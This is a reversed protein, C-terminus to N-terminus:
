LWKEEIIGGEISITVCKIPVHRKASDRAELAISLLGRCCPVEMVVVTLTNIKADDILSTIKDGYIKTGGDLKPCAIGVTKGKLFVNHFNGFSFASCDAALVMDANIFHPSMPSILHMQVPWHSLSSPVDESVKQTTTNKFSRSKSGPCGGGNHQIPEPNFKMDPIPIGHENLFNVAVTYYSTQDHDKLHKLHARITSEGQKIINEMVKAENYTEAEREIISIAGEPCHGLCAGLGDCMLDSIMRAKGDIIQIAGEPCNPICMGCGTCKKQDITIINRKMIAAGQSDTKYPM